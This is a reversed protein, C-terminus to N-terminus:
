SAARFAIRGIIRERLQKFGAILALEPDV